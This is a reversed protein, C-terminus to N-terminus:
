FGAQIEAAQAHAIQIRASAISEGYHAALMEAAETENIWPRLTAVKLPSQRAMRAVASKSSIGQVLALMTGVATGVANIANLAHLQGNPNTIRAAELLSANVQQQLAVIALQLQTLAGASPNLQYARAQQVLINAAADFGVTAAMFIPADAPDLLSATSDVSAVASQLTPSWNVIDKAVDAGSCGSILAAQLLLAILGWTGLKAGIGTSPPLPTSEVPDRSLLGLVATALASLLTVTTGSGATGLTIGHEALVSALSVVAILVGSISTQPHKWINSISNM